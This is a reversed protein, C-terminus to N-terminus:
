VTDADKGQRVAEGVKSQVTGAAYRSYSDILRKEEAVTKQIAPLSEMKDKWAYIKDSVHRPVKDMLKYGRYHEIVCLRNIWPYVTFDVLNPEEAEEEQEDNSDGHQNKANSPSPSPSLQYFSICKLKKTASGSEGEENEEEKNTDQRTATAKWELHDSFAVIGDAMAKWGEQRDIEDRKMLARYFPSCVNKNHTRADRYLQKLLVSYDEDRGGKQNNKSSTSSHKQYLDLLIDLSECQVIDKKDDKEDNNGKGNVEEKAAVAPYVLTPVLGKPNVKLLEPIKTYSVTMGSGLSEILDFEIEFYNLCSWARQAYPCFWASYLTPTPTKM